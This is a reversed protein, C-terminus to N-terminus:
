LVECFSCQPATDPGKGKGKFPRGKGQGKFSRGQGKGVGKGGM